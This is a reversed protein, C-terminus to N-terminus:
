CNPECKKLRPKVQTWREPAEYKFVVSFMAGGLRQALWHNKIVAAKISECSFRAELNTHVARGMGELVLLDTQLQHMKQAVELNIRSCTNGRHLLSPSPQRTHRREGANGKRKNVCFVESPTCLGFTGDHIRTATLHWRRGDRVGPTVYCAGDSVRHM